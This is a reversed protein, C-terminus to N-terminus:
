KCGGQPFEAEIEEVDNYCAEVEELDCWDACVFEYAREAETVFGISFHIPM